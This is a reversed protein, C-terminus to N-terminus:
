GVPIAAQGEAEAQQRQAEATAQDAQAQKEIEKLVKGKYCWPKDSGQPGTPHAYARMRGKKFWETDHIPCYNEGDDESAQQGIM